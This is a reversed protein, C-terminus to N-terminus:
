VVLDDEDDDDAYEDNRTEDYRDNKKEKMNEKYGKADANANDL